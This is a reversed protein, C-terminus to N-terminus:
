YKPFGSKSTPTFIKGRKDWESRVSQVDGILVLRSTLILREDPLLVASTAMGTRTMFLLITLLCVHHLAFNFIKTKNM